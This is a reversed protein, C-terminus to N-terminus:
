DAVYRKAEDIVLKTKGASIANIPTWNLPAGLLGAAEFRKASDPDPVPHSKEPHALWVHMEDPSLRCSLLEVLEQAEAPTAGEAELLQRITSEDHSARKRVRDLFGVRRV